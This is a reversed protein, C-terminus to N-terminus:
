ERHGIVRVSFGNPAIMGIGIGAAVRKESHPRDSAAIPQIFLSIGQYPVSRNLNTHETGFYQDIRIRDFPSDPTLGANVVRAVEEEWTPAKPLRLEYANSARFRLPLDINWALADRELLSRQSAFLTFPIDHFGLESVDPDMLEVIQNLVHKENPACNLNSLFQKVLSHDLHQVSDWSDSVASWEQPDIAELFDQVVVLNFVLRRPSALSRTQFMKGQIDQDVIRPDVVSLRTPRVQAKPDAIYIISPVRDRLSVRQEDWRQARNLIVRDIADIEAYRDWVQQPAWMTIMHQYDARYGCVRMQQNTTDFQATQPMRLFYTTVLQPITIGRGLIDGGILVWAKSAEWAEADEPLSTDTPAAPDSNIVRIQLDSAISLVIRACFEDPATEPLQSAVEQPLSQRWEHYVPRILSDYMHLADSEYSEIVDRQFDSVFRHAQSHDAQRGSPHLLFQVSEMRSSTDVGEPRSAYFTEPSIGRIAAAIFFTILARDLSEPRRGLSMQANDTIVRRGGFDPDMLDALGFYGRGPPVVLCMEPRLFNQTPQALIAQPTATYSLHVHRGIRERASALQEYTVTLEDNRVGANPSAQDAEDDIILVRSDSTLTSLGELLAAMAEVREPKKLVVLVPMPHPLNSNSRLRAAHQILHEVEAFRGGRGAKLTPVDFLKIPTSPLRALDKTLRRLTQGKLEETVGTVIAVADFGEQAAWAITALIHGTKGSQVRGIVLECYTDNTMLIESLRTLHREVEIVLSDFESQGLDEGNFRVLEQRRRSLYERLPQDEDRRPPNLNIVESVASRV